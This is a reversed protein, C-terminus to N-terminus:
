RIQSRRGGVARSLRRPQSANRRGPRRPGVRQCSRVQPHLPAEVHEEVRHVRQRHDESQHVDREALQEVDELARRVEADGVVPTLGLGARLLAAGAATVRERRLQLHGVELLNERLDAEVVVDRVGAGAVLVTVDRSRTGGWCSGAWRAPGCRARAWRSTGAASPTNTTTSNDSWTNRNVTPRSASSASSSPSAQTV